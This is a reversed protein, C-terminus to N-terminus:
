VKILNYEQITAHLFSSFLSFSAPISGNKLILNFTETTTYFGCSQLNQTQIMVLTFQLIEFINMTQVM